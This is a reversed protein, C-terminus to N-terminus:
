IVFVIMSVLLIKKVVCIYKVILLLVPIEFVVVQRDCINNILLVERKVHAM